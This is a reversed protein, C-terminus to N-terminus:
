ERPAWVQHTRLRLCPQYTQILERSLRHRGVRPDYDLLVDNYLTPFFGLVVAKPEGRRLRDRLETTTAIHFRHLQEDPLQMAAPRANFNENGALDDRDALFAFGQWTTFVPDGPRTVEALKRAVTTVDALGLEPPYLRDRHNFLLLHGGAPLFGYAAVLLVAGTAGAWRRRRLLADWCPGGALLLLVAPVMFYQQFSEAPLLALVAAGLATLTLLAPRWEAAVWCTLWRRPTPTATDPARRRKGGLGLAAGGLALALLAPFQIQRALEGLQVATSTWTAFTGEGRAQSRIAHFGLNDFAFVAPDPFVSRLVLLLAPLAGLAFAGLTRVRGTPRAFSGAVVWVTALAAFPAALLRTGVSWSAACGALAAWWAAHKASDAARAAAHLALAGAFLPLAHNKVTPMWFLIPANLVVLAWGIWGAPVGRGSRAFWAGVVTALGAGCLMSVWLCPMYGYGFLRIAAAYPYPLLPVQQHFFDQCPVMGHLVCRIAYLFHGEDADLVRHDAMVRFATAALGFQLLLSGWGIWRAFRNRAIGGEPPSPSTCPESTM